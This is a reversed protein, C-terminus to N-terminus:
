FAYENTQSGHHGFGGQGKTSLPHEMESNPLAIEKQERRKALLLL